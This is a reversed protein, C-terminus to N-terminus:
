TQMLTCEYCFPKVKLQMAENINIHLGVINQYKTYM